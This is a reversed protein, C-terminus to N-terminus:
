EFKHRTDVENKRAVYEASTIESTALRRDLEATEQAKLHNLNARTVEYNIVQAGGYGAFPDWLISLPWTLLDAAGLGWQRTYFSGCGPLLGLAAAVKPKKEEILVGNQQMVAYEVRQAPPLSSCGTFSGTALSLIVGLLPRKM